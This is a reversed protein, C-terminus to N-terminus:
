NSDIRFVPYRGANAVVEDPTRGGFFRRGGRVQGLFARLVPEREEIPLESLSVAETRGRRTLTGARSAQVNRVWAADAFAAVIFRVGDVVALSVPTSRPEGSRRGKVTLLHQSGVSFGRRLMAINLRIM